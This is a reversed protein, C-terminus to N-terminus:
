KNPFDVDKVEEPTAAPAKPTEGNPYELKLQGSTIAKQILELNKKEDRDKKEDLVEGREVKRGLYILYESAGCTWIAIFIRLVKQYWKLYKM